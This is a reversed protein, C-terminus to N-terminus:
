AECEMRCLECYACKNRTDCVECYEPETWQDCIECQFVDM